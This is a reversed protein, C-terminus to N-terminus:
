GEVLAALQEVTTFSFGGTRKLVAALYRTLLLLKWSCGPGEFSFTFDLPAFILM